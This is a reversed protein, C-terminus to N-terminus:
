TSLRAFCPTLFMVNWDRCHIVPQALQFCQIFLRISIHNKCFHWCLFFNRRILSQVGTQRWDTNKDSVTNPNFHHRFAVPVKEHESEPVSLDHKIQCTACGNVKGTSSGIQSFAIVSQSYNDLQFEFKIGIRAAHKREAVAPPSRNFNQM